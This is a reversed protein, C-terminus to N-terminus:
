KQYRAYTPGSNSKLGKITYTLDSARSTHPTEECTITEAICPDKDLREHMKKAVKVNYCNVEALRANEPSLNDKRENFEHELLTSHASQARQADEPELHDHEPPIPVYDM